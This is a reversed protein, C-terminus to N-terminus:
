SVLTDAPDGEIFTFKFSESYPDKKKVGSATKRAAGAGDKEKVVYTIQDFNKLEVRRNVGVKVGNIFTGNSSDCKLPM